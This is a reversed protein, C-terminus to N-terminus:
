AFSCGAIRYTVCIVRVAVGVVVLDVEEDLLPLRLDDMLLVTVGVRDVPCGAGERVVIREGITLYPM